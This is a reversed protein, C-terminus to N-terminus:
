RNLPEHLGIKVQSKKYAISTILVFFVALYFGATKQTQWFELSKALRVFSSNLRKLTLQAGAKELLKNVLLCHVVV